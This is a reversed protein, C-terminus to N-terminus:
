TQKATKCFVTTGTELKRSVECPGLWRWDQSVQSYNPNTHHMSTVSQKQLRRFHFSKFLFRSVESLNRTENDKGTLNGLRNRTMKHM